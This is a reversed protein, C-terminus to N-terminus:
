TEWQTPGERHQAPLYITQLRSHCPWQTTTSIQVALLSRARVQATWRPTARLTDIAVLNMGLSHNAVQCCHSNLGPIAVQWRDNRLKAHAGRTDTHCQHPGAALPMIKLPPVQDRPRRTSSTVTQTHVTVVVVHGETKNNNPEEHDLPTHGWKLSSPLYLQLHSCRMPCLSARHIREEPHEMEGPNLACPDKGSLQSADHHGPHM